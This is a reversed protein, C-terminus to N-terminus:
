RSLDHPVTVLVTQTAINDNVDTCRITVTYIRGSGSGSREARLRLHHRDGAILQIDGLGSDPENSVASLSSSAVGCNDSTTYNVTVLVMRHNGPWLNGPAVSIDGIVPKEEDEVTVVFSCIATNGAADRATYTVTTAGVPFTEGPKHDSTFSTVGINDTATPETWSVQADCTGLTNSVKIDQPCNHISPPEIDVFNAVLSRDANVQFKYSALDSAPQGKETWNVFAFGQNTMATVTAVAGGNYTGGGSTTGGASPAASTSITYSSVFNAVLSRNGNVIFTYVASASVAVGGETWNAFSFGPSATASVTASTGNNFVGGGSTTGGNAPSGSTAITSTVPGVAGAITVSYRNSVFAGSLDAAELSFTFTGPVTPTGSVVGAVGDLQMGNPLSGSTVSALFPSGGIVVVTREPYPVNVEGDQLHDILGLNPAVDFGSMQAGFFDGVVVNTALDVTVTIPEGTVPDFSAVYSVIGVGNTGNAAVTDAMAEGTEADIPGTYKYFEYRRTIIEDGGPLEEPAGQLFGKPNAANAFETQLIRWETEVEAPEGNAWPQPQGPDDAVLDTLQVKNTNHTTTKIDKVWTAEGFQLPPPAPPPPPVIVAQVQPPAAPQPLYTFTPTAVNVPPGHILNGHGDDILWNYKVASPTGYYGVGFHEGGFNVSPDTFQHGQTPAIPGSPIATYATWTNNSRVAAYRVLVNTHGPVSTSDETIKPIGYHNYDYTYTIDKSRVDDLEIDFGHAEVGTDNVCDFNNLSGYAISGRAISMTAALASLAAVAMKFHTNEAIHVM